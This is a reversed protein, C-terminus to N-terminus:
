EVLTPSEEVGDPWTYRYDDGCGTVVLTAPPDIRLTMRCQWDPGSSDLSPLELVMEVAADSRHLVAVDNSNPPGDQQMVIEDIADGDLDVLFRPQNPPADQTYGGAEGFARVAGADDLLGVYVTTLLAPESGAPPVLEGFMALSADGFRGPLCGGLRIDGLATGQNWGNDAHRIADRMAGDAAAPCDAWSADTVAVEGRAVIANGPEDVEGRTAAKGGCAAAVILAAARKM